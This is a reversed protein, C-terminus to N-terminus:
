LRPAKAECVYGASHLAGRGQCTKRSILRAIHPLPLKEEESYVLHYQIPSFLPRQPPQPLFIHTHTFCYHLLIAFIVWSGFFLSLLPPLVSSCMVKREGWLCIFYSPISLGKAKFLLKAVARNFEWCGYLRCWFVFVGGLTGLSSALWSLGFTATKGFFFWQFKVVLLGIYM